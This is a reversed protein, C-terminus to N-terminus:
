GEAALALAAAGLVASEDGHQAPEVRVARAMVPFANTKMFTVAPDILRPGIKAAGGGFVIMAPNFLHVINVLGIGLYRAAEALISAATADGQEAAMAVVESTMGGWSEALHALLPSAGTRVAEAGARGIATGSALAELCGKRGCGCAPGDPELIMHGVEGASGTVGEYLRGGLIIGGGIGTSITIYVMESVGRGAGFTQEGIASANADNALVTTLGMAARLRAALPVDTWGPLNPADTITGLKSNIPGAAAVGLGQLEDLALRAGAAAARLAEAMRAIVADPGAEADTPRRDSAVIRGFEDVVAALIKTGGLDLAGVMRTM